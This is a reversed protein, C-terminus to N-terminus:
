AEVLTVAIELDARSAAVALKRDATILTASNAEALAIYFCDYAPHDLTQALELARLAHQTGSELAEFLAPVARQIDKCRDRLEPKLRGIKWLANATEHVILDPAMMATAGAVAARAKTSYALDLLLALAINADIVANM